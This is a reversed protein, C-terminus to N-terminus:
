AAISPPVHVLSSMLPWPLRSRMTVLPVKAGLPQGLQGELAGFGVELLQLRCSKKRRKGSPTYSDLRARLLAAVKLLLTRRDCTIAAAASAM